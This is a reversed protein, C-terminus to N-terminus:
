NVIGHNIAIINMIILNKYSFGHIRFWDDMKTETQVVTSFWTLGHRNYLKIMCEARNIKEM